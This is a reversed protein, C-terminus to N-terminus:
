AMPATATYWWRVKALNFKASNYVLSVPVKVGDRATIWLRESHYLGPEVGKVEQRKLLERKGSNLDWEYTSTPTTMASYGYRLRDSEPDPNYGLWAM